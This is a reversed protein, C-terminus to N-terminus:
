QFKVNGIWKDSELAKKIIKEAKDIAKEEDKAVVSVKIPITIDFRQKGKPVITENLAKELFENLTSPM